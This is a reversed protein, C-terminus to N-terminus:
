SLNGLPFPSVDTHWILAAQHRFYTLLTLNSKTAASPVRMVLTSALIWPIGKVTNPFDHPPHFPRRRGRPAYVTCTVTRPVPLQTRRLVAYRSRTSFVGHRLVTGYGVRLGVGLGVGLGVVPGVALGVVLGVGALIPLAGVDLFKGIQGLVGELGQFVRRRRLGPGVLPHERISFPQPYFGAAALLLHRVQKGDSRCKEIHFTIGILPAVLRQLPIQLLSQGLTRPTERSIADSKQIERPCISWSWDWHLEEQRGTECSEFCRQRPRILHGSYRHNSCFGM